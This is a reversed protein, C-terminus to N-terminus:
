GEYENNMGGAMPPVIAMVDGDQLEADRNVVQTDILILFLPHSDLPRDTYFVEHCRRELLEDLKAIADEVTAGHSLELELFPRGALNRFYGAFRVEINM